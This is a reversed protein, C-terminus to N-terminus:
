SRRRRTATLGILGSLLLLSSPEPVSTSVALTSPLVVEFGLDQFIAVTTDSLFASGDSNIRGTLLEDNLSLGFTDGPLLVTLEPGLDGPDNEGDPDPIFAPQGESTDPNAILNELSDFSITENLHADATGPGGDLEIPIFTADPDFEDRFTAVGQAGTFQGTGNVLLGNEVFLTGFGLTHAIEHNLTNFFLLSDLNDFDASDITM